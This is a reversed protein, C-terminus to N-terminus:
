ANLLTVDNSYDVFLKGEYIKNRHSGKAMGHFNYISNVKHRKSIRRDDCCHRMDIEKHIFYRIKMLSYVLRKGM